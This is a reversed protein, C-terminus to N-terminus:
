IQEWVDPTFNVMTANVNGVTALQTAGQGKNTLPISNVVDGISNKVTFNRIAAGITRVYNFRAGLIGVSGNSSNVTSVIKHFKDDYPLNSTNAGDVTFSSIIGSSGVSIQSIYSLFMSTNSSGESTLIYDETNTSESSYMLEFEITGGDPILVPESLKWYQSVGDLRAVWKIALALKSKVFGAQELVPSILGSM